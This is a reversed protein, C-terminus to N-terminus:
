IRQTKRDLLTQLGVTGWAFHNVPTEQSYRARSTAYFVWRNRAVIKLTGILVLVFHRSPM